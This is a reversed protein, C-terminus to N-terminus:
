WFPPNNTKHFCFNYFFLSGCLYIHIKTQGILLFLSLNQIIFKKIVKVKEHKIM